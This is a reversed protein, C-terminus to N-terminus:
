EANLTPLLETLEKQKQKEAAKLKKLQEQLGEIETEQKDFKELYRKHAASTPPLNALNKRLRDQEEGIEKLRKEVESAQIRQEEITARQEHITKLAAKVEASLGPLKQLKELDSMSITAGAFATTSDRENVVDARADKGPALKLAFEKTMVPAAPPEGVIRWGQGIRHRLTVERPEKETANIVRYSQQM